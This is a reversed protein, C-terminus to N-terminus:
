AQPRPSGRSYQQFLVGVVILAVIPSLFHTMSTRASLGPRGCGFTHTETAGTIPLFKKVWPCAPTLTLSTWAFAPGYLKHKNHQNKRGSILPFLRRGASRCFSTPSREIQPPFYQTVIQTIKPPFKAPDKPGVFYLSWFFGPFM